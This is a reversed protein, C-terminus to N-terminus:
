GSSNVTRLPLQLLKTLNYHRTPREDTEGQFSWLGCLFVKEYSLLLFHNINNTPMLVNECSRAKHEIIKDTRGNAGECGDKPIDRLRGGEEKPFRQTVDRFVLRDELRNLPPDM